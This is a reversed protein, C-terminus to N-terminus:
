PNTVAPSAWMQGSLQPLIMNLYEAGYNTQMLSAFDPNDLIRQPIATSVSIGASKSQQLFSYQGKIGQSARRLNTVMFHAALLLYGINFTAQDPFFQPNFFALGTMQMANLIRYDPIQTKPDPGFPFDDVFYQQFQPIQPAIYPGCTYPNNTIVSTQPYSVNLHTPTTSDTAVLVYYYPTNEALNSDNLTLTTQGAVVTAASPVFNYQTSRNWQYTYPGIGGTPPTAQLTITTRSVAVITTSGPLFPM